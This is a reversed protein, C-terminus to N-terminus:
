ETGLLSKQRVEFAAFQFIQKKINNNNNNKKKASLYHLRFHLCPLFVATINQLYKRNLTEIEKHAYYFFTVIELDLRKFIFFAM